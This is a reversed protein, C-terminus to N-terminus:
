SQGTHKQMRTFNAARCRGLMFCCGLMLGAEWSFLLVAHSNGLQMIGLRLCWAVLDMPWSVM